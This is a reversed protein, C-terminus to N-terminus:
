TSNPRGNSAELGARLVEPDASDICLRSTVAAAIATAAWRMDTIEDAQSGSGTGVNVDIYQAGAQEQCRALDVLGAADHERVLEAVQRRTANIKEGVILM